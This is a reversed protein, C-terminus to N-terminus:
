LKKLKGKNFMPSYDYHIWRESLIEGSRFTSEDHAILLRANAMNAALSWYYEKTGQKFNENMKEYEKRIYIHHTAQSEAFYTVFEKRKAVVDQREHGNIYPRSKNKGWFFGWSSILRNLGKDTIFKEPDLDPEKQRLLEKSFIKLIDITFVAEKKSVQEITYAKIEETLEPFRDFIDDRHYKGRNEEFIAEEDGNIFRSTYRHTTRDCFSGMKSLISSIKKRGLGELRLVMYISTALAREHIHTWNEKERIRSMLIELHTQTLSDISFFDNEDKQDEEVESIFTQNLDNRHIKVIQSINKASKTLNAKALNNTNIQKRTLKKNKKTTSMSRILKFCFSSKNKAFIIYKIYNKYIYTIYFNYLLHLKFRIFKNL